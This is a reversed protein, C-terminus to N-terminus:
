LMTEVLQKALIPATSCAKTGMGNLLAVQKNTPHLAAIAERQLTTPRIAARHNIITFPVKLFATLWAKTENYFQITPKDDEYQWKASAGVWYTNEGFPVIMYKHKYIFAHDLNEIYVLLAEGKSHAFQLHTTFPNKDTAAGDCFIIKSASIDKYIVKNDSFNIAKYDVTEQFYQEKLQLYEKMSQMFTHVDIQYCPNIIGSNFDYNFVHDFSNENSQLYHCELKKKDFLVESEQSTFFQLIGTEKLVKTDFFAEFKQYENKLLLMDISSEVFRKGNVPNIIGASVSSGSHPMADDFVVFTKHNQMLYWCLWTGSIGQGIVLYDVQM